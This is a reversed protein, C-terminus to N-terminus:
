ISKKRIVEFINGENHAILIAGEEATLANAGTVGIKAKDLYNRIEDRMFRVIGEPEENIDTGYFDSLGKAIKKTSLHSIPGTPHSPSSKLVQLVRDGVDTEIVKIGKSELEETLEIEKTVNSKSKVVLKENGIEKMIVRVAEDKGKVPFVKIGNEQIKELTRKLLGENGISFERIKKLRVKKENLNPPINKKQREKVSDFAKRLAIVEDFYM